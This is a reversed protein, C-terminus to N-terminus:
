RGNRAQPVAKAAPQTTPEDAPLYAAISAALPAMAAVSKEAQRIAATQLSRMEATTDADVEVLTESIKEMRTVAEDLKKMNLYSTFAGAFGGMMDLVLDLRNDAGLGKAIHTDQKKANCLKDNLAAVSQGAERIARRADETELYSFFSMGRNSSVMDILEFDSAHRAERIASSVKEATERSHDRIDKIVAYREAADQALGGAAMATEGLAQYQQQAIQHLTDQQDQIQADLKGIKRKTLAIRTAKEFARTVKRTWGNDDQANFAAVREALPARASQWDQQQQKFLSEAAQWEAAIKSIDTM